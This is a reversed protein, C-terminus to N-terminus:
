LTVLFHWSIWQTSVSNSKDESLKKRNVQHLRLPVVVDLENMKQQKERYVLELDDEAARRSSKVTKEQLVSCFFIVFVFASCFFGLFYFFVPCM